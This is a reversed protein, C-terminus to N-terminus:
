TTDGKDMNTYTCIVVKVLNHYIINAQRWMDTCTDMIVDMDM